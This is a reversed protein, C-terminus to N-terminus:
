FAGEQGPGPELPLGLLYLKKFRGSLRGTEWQYAGAPLGGLLLDLDKLTYTRANSVAGDWAFVLPIIPICYTFVLQVWSLPKVRPTILLCMLFIPVLALWWLGKPLSNDSIELVCIPQRQAQADRLIQQAVVPPMHHFSGILTRVGKLRADICRADLPQTLYALQPNNLGNIHRALHQDPHLDSLTLSLQDFSPNQRLTQWVSIMPGGSGSCLDILAPHPTCALARTLLDVLDTKSGVLQHMVGILRTTAQRIWTPCHLWDEVEVLHIRKMALFWRISLRRAIRAIWHPYLPRSCGPSPAFTPLLPRFAKQQHHHSASLIM